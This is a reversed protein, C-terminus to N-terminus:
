QPGFRIANTKMSAHPEVPYVGVERYSVSTYSDVDLNRPVETVRSAHGSPGLLKTAAAAAAHWCAYATHTTGACCTPNSAQAAAAEAGAAAAALPKEAQAAM